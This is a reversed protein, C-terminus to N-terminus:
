KRIGLQAKLDRRYIEKWNENPALAVLLRFLRARDSCEHLAKVRNEAINVGYHTASVVRKLSTSSVTESTALFARRVWYRNGVLFVGLDTFLAWFVAVAVVVLCSAVLAFRRNVRRM